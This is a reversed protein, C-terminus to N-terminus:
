RSVSPLISLPLGLSSKVLMWSFLSRISDHWVAGNCRNLLCCLCGLTIHYHAWGSLFRCPSSVVSSPKVALRESVTHPCPLHCVAVLLAVRSSPSLVRSQKSLSLFDPTLASLWTHFMRVRDTIQAEVSLFIHCKTPLSRFMIWCRWSQWQYGNICPPCSLWSGECRTSPIHTNRRRQTCLTFTCHRKRM